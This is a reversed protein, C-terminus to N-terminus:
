FDQIKLKSNQNLRISGENTVIGEATTGIFIPGYWVAVQGAPFSLNNTYYQQQGNYNNFVFNDGGEGSLTVTSTDTNVNVDPPANQLLRLKAGEQIILKVNHNTATPTPPVIEEDNIVVGDFLASVLGGIQIGVSDIPNELNSTTYTGPINGVVWSSIQGAPITTNVEVTTPTGGNNNFVVVDGGGQVTPDSFTITGADSDATVDPQPCQIKFSSNLNVRVIVGDAIKIHCNDGVGIMTNLSPSTSTGINFSQSIIGPQSVVGDEIVVNGDNFTAISSSIKGEVHLPNEKGFFKYKDKHIKFLNTGGGAIGAREISFFSRNGNTNDADILMAISGSGKAQMTHAVYEEGLVNYSTNEPRWVVAGGPIEADRYQMSMAVFGATGDGGGDNITAGKVNSKGFQTQRLEIDKHDTIGKFQMKGSGTDISIRALEESAGSGSKKIFKISDESVYLDKWVAEPSGLSFSSTFESPAVAPLINGSVHMTNSFVQGWSHSPSGLDFSNPAGPLIAGSVVMGLQLTENEM